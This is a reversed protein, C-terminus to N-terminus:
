AEASRIPEEQTRLAGSKELARVLDASSAYAERTHEVEESPRDDEEIRRM